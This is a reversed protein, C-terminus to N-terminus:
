LLCGLAQQLRGDGELLRFTTRQFTESFANTLAQLDSTPPFLEPHRLHLIWTIISFESILRHANTLATYLFDTDRLSVFRM